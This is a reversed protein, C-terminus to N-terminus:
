LEEVSLIEFEDISTTTTREIWYQNSLTEAITEAEEPTNADIYVFQEQSLSVQAIVKFLPM